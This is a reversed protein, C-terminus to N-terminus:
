VWGLMFTGDGHRNAQAPASREGRPTARPLGPPHSSAPREVVNQRRISECGIPRPQPEIVAPAEDFGRRSEADSVGAVTRPQEQEVVVSVAVLVQQAQTMRLRRKEIAVVAAGIPVGQPHPQLPGARVALAKSSSEHRLHPASTRDERACEDAPAVKETLAFRHDVDAQALRIPESLKLDVPGTTRHLRQLVNRGSLQQFHGLGAQVASERIVIAARPHM